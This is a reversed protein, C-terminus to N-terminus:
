HCGVEAVLELSLVSSEGEGQCGEVGVLDLKVKSVLNKMSGKRSGELEAAGMQESINQRLVNKNNM